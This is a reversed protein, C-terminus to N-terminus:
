YKYFGRKTKTGLWGAEVHKRLLPCPRYRPDGIERHLSTLIALVIDLGVLDALALPGMPHNCGLKMCEDIAEPAAVGEQLAFVAENIMPMVVRNVVFGPSDRVDIPVKGLAEALARVKANTADSTQFGRVVEVLKMAPVPNFFHMGIFRDPRGCDAALATISLSSTNTAIIVDEALLGNLRQYLERKLDADEPVSEVVIDARKVEELAVVGHIRSLAEDCEAQTIKEKKLLRGLSGKVAALGKAVSDQKRNWLIASLGSQAAVQALGAGMTGTGLIGITKM